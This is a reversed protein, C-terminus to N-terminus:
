KQPHALKQKRREQQEAIKMENWKKDEIGVRFAVSAVILSAVTAGFYAMCIYASSKATRKVGYATALGVLSSVGAITYKCQPCKLNQPTGPPDHFLKYINWYFNSSM